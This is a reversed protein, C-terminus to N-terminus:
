APTLGKATMATRMPSGRLFAGLATAAAPEAAACHVGFEFEAVLGIEAPLPGVIDVGPVAMLESDMQIGIEADGRVLYNGILGAPGGPGLITKPKMAEAIGLQEMMKVMHAGAIGAGPGSYVLSRANLMAQRFAELTAIDPKPTGKKVAVMTTSRAVPTRSAETLKGLRMMEDFGERTLVAADTVEGESLRKLLQATPGYSVEVKCGSDREFQPLTEDLSSKLVTTCLIRITGAV